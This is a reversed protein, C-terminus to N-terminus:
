LVLEDPDRERLPEAPREPPPLYHAGSHVKGGLPLGAAWAPADLLIDRFEQDSLAGIPTEVTIEDHCHFVVPFGRAEFREIAAALLDRAVGSVVNEVFVGFWGRYPKWQARANDFFEIDPPAEEFKGPVLRAMPYAIARGSPLRLRLTGDEFTAVIPPQPAPAVLIPAGTRIAIRLSRALDSWFKRTLPHATRWQHIIAKIEDDTHSDHPAIRRWAGVSGGFGSALEARKGLQREEDGIEAGAPRNLMKRAIIRYPEIATDRTQQYTRYAVLKWTEGALWALIISEIASFDGSM